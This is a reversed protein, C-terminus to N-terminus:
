AVIIINTLGGSFGVRRPRTDGKISIPILKNLVDDPLESPITIRVTFNTKKRDELDVINNDPFSLFSATNYFYIEDYQGSIECKALQRRFEKETFADKAAKLPLPYNWAELMITVKKPDDHYDDYKKRSIERWVYVIKMSIDVTWGRQAFISANCRGHGTSDIFYGNPACFVCSDSAAGGFERIIDAPERM